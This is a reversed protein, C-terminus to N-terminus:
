SAFYGKCHPAQFRCHFAAARKTSLLSSCTPHCTAWRPGRLSKCRAQRCPRPMGSTPLRMHAASRSGGRSPGYGRRRAAARRGASGPNRRRIFTGRSYGRGLTRDQPNAHRNNGCASPVALRVFGLWRFSVWSAREKQFRLHSTGVDDGGGGCHSAPCSATLREGLRAGADNFVRHILGPLHISQLSQSKPDRRAKHPMPRWTANTGRHGSDAQLLREPLTHQLIQTGQRGIEALFPSRMRTATRPLQLFTSLFLQFSRSVGSANWAAQRRTPRSSISRPCARM